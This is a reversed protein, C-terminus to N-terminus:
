NWLGRNRQQVMKFSRFAARAKLIVVEGDGEGLSSTVEQRGLSSHVGVVVERLKLGDEFEFFYLGNVETKRDLQIFCRVEQEYRWHSFKTTFFTHMQNLQSEESKEFFESWDIKLRHSRYKIYEVRNDDIDFGLCLGRHRDAYHAWQVPNSWNKSFCLIGTSSNLHDLVDGFAHRVAENRMDAAFMEFPDNLEKLRSIKIRRDRLAQLGFNENLFHYVRV